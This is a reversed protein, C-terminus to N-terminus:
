KKEVVWINRFRVPNGHNQLYVPGPGPGEHVPAATTAHPAEIDKQVEVGNHLVTLRASNVKKGDKYEAATYDIDYTQWSLPPYCMNIRPPKIGYIAGCDDKQPVLGFSDLIQTEYRGQSYYGSNGRGQGRAAPMFPLMFELHIKYSQFKQKSTSGELLIGDKVRGDIFAEASKGDFLVIAGAPPKAGLTPSERHIKKLTALTYGDSTKARMVDDRISLSAQRVVISEEGLSIPLTTTNGKTEGESSERRDKQKGSWGDGPLGGEYWVARFKGNGLAIVQAGVAAWNSEESDHNGVYEGQVKFDLGAHAADTAVIAPPKPKAKEQAVTMASTALLIAAAFFPMSLRFM